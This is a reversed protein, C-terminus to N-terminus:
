LRLAPAHERRSQFYAQQIVYADASARHRQEQSTLRCDALAADWAEYQRESMIAELPSLRFGCDVGACYFLKSLWDSDNVWADSYVIQGDIFANLDECVARPHEGKSMLLSRSIGHLREATQQWHVWSRHPKILRCFREGDARVVGVEIPYSDAGFGSAEIDLITPPNTCSM